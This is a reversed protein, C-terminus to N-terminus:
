GGDQATDVAAGAPDQWLLLPLEGPKNCLRSMGLAVINMGSNFEADFRSGCVTCRCRQWKGGYPREVTGGCKYCRSSTGWENLAEAQDGLKTKEHVIYNAQRSFSWGQLRRRNGRDGNGKYKHYHIYEPDGIFAHYGHTTKAFEKALMRDYYEAVNRRKERLKKLAEWKELKRLHSVRDNLEQLVEAKGNDFTRFGQFRFGESILVASTPRTIGLDAGAYGKVEAEPVLYKCLVHVMFKRRRPNYIIEFSKIEEAAELMRRHYPSPNLLVDVTKGKELTSIHAVTDTLKLGAKEIRGTRLDLWVPIKKLGSRKSTFPYSPKRKRLKEKWRTGDKAKSMMLEWKRHAKEYQRWAWLVKDECQQIYCSSLGTIKAVEGSYRRIDKRTRPPSGGLAVDKLICQNFLRIAYTLRATLNDLMSLKKETTLYHVPIRLTRSVTM